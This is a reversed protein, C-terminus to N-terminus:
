YFECAALAIRISVEENVMKLATVKTSRAGAKLYETISWPTVGYRHLVERNVALQLTSVSAADARLVIIPEPRSQLRELVSGHRNWLGM